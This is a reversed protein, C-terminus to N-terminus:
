LTTVNIVMDATSFTALDRSAISINATNTPPFTDEIKITPVDVVGSVALPACQFQIIVVDQGIQQQDGVAKLADTVLIEGAVQDGSGFLTADVTIDVEIYMRVETPRSFDIDHTFGQSDTITVTRGDPGPDRYTQIGIPKTDFIAQAIETDDGGSVVAEFSHPPLGDGDTFDTDNEFIFAQVVGDVDLIASRVAELTASGSLRILEERRLRFEPDTELNRGATAAGSEGSFIDEPFGLVANATGGTIEVQSNVGTTLSEFQVKDGVVYAVGGTVDDNFVKAVEVATAAGISVFDGTNFTVTQTSGDDVKLTIFQGNSLAYPEAVGNIVQAPTDPNFGKFEAQSFGLAEAGTGGAIRLASGTGDTDSVLRVVGGADIGSIGSSIDSIIAAIVEQATAANIDVFDGTAFTVTQADAQDVEILFTQGDQLYYPESSLSSIAAKASWGSVPTKITDITAPNGAIPGTNVSQFAVAVTANYGSSNTVAETSEWQEGNAGISVLKDVDITTGNDINLLCTVTSPAAPLRIAGTIACVNDLAEDSASDPQRARYVAGAVEWAEAVQDAYIGNLQGLVSDAQTNISAGFVARQAAEIEDLIEQLTKVRFGTPIVGYSSM